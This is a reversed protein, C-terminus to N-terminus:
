RNTLNIMNGNKQNQATELVAGEKNAASVMQMPEQHSNNSLKKAQSQTNTNVSVSQGQENSDISASETQVAAAADEKEQVKLDTEQFSNITSDVTETSRIAPEATQRNSQEMDEAPAKQTVDSMGTMDTSSDDALVAMGNTFLLITVVSSLFIKIMRQDNKKM